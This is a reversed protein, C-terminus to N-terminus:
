GGEFMILYLMRFLVVCIYSILILVICYIFSTSVVRDVRVEQRVEGEAMVQGAMPPPNRFLNEVDSAMCGHSLNGLFIPRLYLNGGGNNGDGDNNNHVQGDDGNNTSTTNMSEENMMGSEGGATATDGNEEGGSEKNYDDMSSSPNADQPPAREEEM